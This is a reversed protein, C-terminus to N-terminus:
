WAPNDWTEQRERRFREVWAESVQDSIREHAPAPVEITDGGPVELASLVRRLNAEWDAVMDEYVVTHPTVGWREFLAQIAAERFVSETLLHEIANADYAAVLGEDAQAREGRVTGDFTMVGRRDDKGRVRHWENSKIARWWSVAQRIKNRRTMFVHKCNPFFSRWAGVEDLEAADPVTEGMVRTLREHQSVLVSTKCAFVGNASTGTRWLAERLGSADEVGFEAYLADTSSSNFWERPKGAVGTDELAQALVTSGVRQSFWIIYSQTPAGQAM